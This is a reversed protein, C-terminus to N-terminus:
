VLGRCTYETDDVICYMYGFYSVSKESQKENEVRKIGSELLPNNRFLDMGRM